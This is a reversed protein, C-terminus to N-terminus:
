FRITWKSLSPYVTTPGHKYVRYRISSWYSTPSSVAPNGIGQLVSVFSSTIDFGNEDLIQNLAGYTAPYCFYIFRNVGSVNFLKSSTGTYFKPEILKNLYPLVLPMDANGNTINASFTAMGYFFPYVLDLVVSSSKTTPTISGDSSATPGLLYNSVGSDTVSLTYTSSTLSPVNGTAYPPSSVSTLGPTTPLTPGFGSSNSLVASLIPDSRKSISWKLQIGTSLAPNGKEGVSYKGWGTSLTNIELSCLPELYPYLMQRVVEVVPANSFTQGPKINGFTGIIPVASDLEISVGNILVNSGYINTVSSTSGITALNLTNNDWILKGNYYKLIQGNSALSTESKTPFVVNNISVRGVSSDISIDGTPNVIELYLSTTGSYSNFYPANNYLLSNTGALFAIKTNSPSVGVKNNYFFIDTDNSPGLLYSTLVDTGSINKKGFLIKKRINNNDIGIYEISSGITQKFVSSEWASFVADRVNVPKILKSTNDPLGYLVDNISSLRHSEYITNDNISYTLPM